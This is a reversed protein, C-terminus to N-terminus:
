QVGASAFPTTCPVFPSINGKKNPCLIDEQGALGHNWELEYPFLIEFKLVDQSKLPESTSM